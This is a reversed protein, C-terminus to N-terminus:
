SKRTCWSTPCSKSFSPARTSSCPTTLSLPRCLSLSRPSLAPPALALHSSGVRTWGRGRGPVRGPVTSVRATVAAADCVEPGQQGLLRVSLGCATVGKGHPALCSGGRLCVAAEAPPAHPASLRLVGAPCPPRQAQRGQRPVPPASGASGPPARACSQLSGPRHTAGSM